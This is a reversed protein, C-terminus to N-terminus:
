PQGETAALAARATAKEQKIAEFIDDGMKLGLADRLAAKVKNHVRNMRADDIPTPCNFCLWEHVDGLAAVLRKRSERAADREAEAQEARETMKVWDATVDMVLDLPGEMDYGFVERIGRCVDNLDSAEERATKLEQELAAITAAQQAIVDPAFHVAEAELLRDADPTDKTDIQEGSM